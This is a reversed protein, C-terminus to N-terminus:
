NVGLWATLNDSEWATVLKEPPIIGGLGTKGLHECTGEGQGYGTGVRVFCHKRCALSAVADVQLGKPQDNYFAVSSATIHQKLQHNDMETLSAPLTILNTLFTSHKTM